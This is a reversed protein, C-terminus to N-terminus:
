WQLARLWLLILWGMYGPANITFMVSAIRRVRSSKCSINLVSAFIALFVLLREQDNNQEPWNYLSQNQSIYLQMLYLYFNQPKLFCWIFSEHVSYKGMVSRIFHWCSKQWEPAIQDQLCKDSFPRFGASIILNVQSTM